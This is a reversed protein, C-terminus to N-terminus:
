SVRNNFYRLQSLVYNYDGESCNAPLAFENSEGNLLVHTATSVTDTKKFWINSGECYANVDAKLLYDLSQGMAPNTNLDTETSGTVARLVNGADDRITSDSYRILKQLSERESWFRDKVHSLSLESFESIPILNNIHLWFRRIESEYKSSNTISGIRIELLGDNHLKAVNVARENVYGYIEHFKGDHEESAIFKKFRRQNVEKITLCLDVKATEWRVDVIEADTPQELIRPTALLEELGVNRLKSSIRDRGMLEVAKDKSCTYLFIHQHGCEEVSRLLKILDNNTIHHEEIAPIIRKNLVIDWSGASHALNKTKLFESVVVLSTTQELLNVIQKTINLDEAM